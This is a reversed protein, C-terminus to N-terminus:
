DNPSRFLWAIGVVLGGIVIPWKWNWLSKTTDIIAQGGKAAMKAADIASQKATEKMVWAFSGEAAYGAIDRAANAIVAGLQTWKAYVNKDPNSGFAMGQQKWKAFENNRIKELAQGQTSTPDLPSEAKDLENQVVSIVGHPNPIDDASIRSAYAM